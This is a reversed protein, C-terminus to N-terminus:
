LEKLGGQFTKFKNCQETTINAGSKEYEALINGDTQTHDFDGLIHALEHAVVNYTPKRLNKYYTTNVISSIWATNCATPRTSCGLHGSFAYAPHEESVKTAFFLTPRKLYSPVRRAYLETQDESLTNTGADVFVMKIEDIKIKCQGYIDSVRQLHDAVLQLSNWGAREFVVLSLDISHTYDQRNSTVELSYARPNQYLGREWQATQATTMEEPTFEAAFDVQCLTLVTFFLSLKRFNFKNM